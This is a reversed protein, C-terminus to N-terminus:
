QWEDSKVNYSLLVDNTGIPRNESNFITNELFAYSPKEYPTLFVRHPNPVSRLWGVPLHVPIEVFFSMINDTTTHPGRRKM